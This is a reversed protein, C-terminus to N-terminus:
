LWKSKWTNLNGSNIDSFVLFWNIDNIEKHSVALKLNRCGSHAFGDIAVGMGINKLWSKIEIFKHWCAM